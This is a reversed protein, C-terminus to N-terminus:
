RRAASRLEEHRALAVEPRWAQARFRSDSKQMRTAERGHEDPLAGYSGVERMPTLGHYSKVGHPITRAVRLIRHGNLTGFFVVGEGSM